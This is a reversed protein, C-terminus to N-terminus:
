WFFLLFFNLKGSTTAASGPERARVIVETATNQEPVPKGVSSSKESVSEDVSEEDTTLFWEGTYHARAPAPENNPGYQVGEDWLMLSGGRKWKAAM